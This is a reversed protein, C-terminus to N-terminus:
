CCLAPLAAAIDDCIIILYDHCFKLKDLRDVKQKESYKTLVNEDGSAVHVIRKTLASFLSRRSTGFSHPLFNKKKNCFGECLWELPTTLFQKVSCVM